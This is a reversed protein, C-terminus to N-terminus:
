HFIKGDLAFDKGLHDMSICHATLIITTTMNGLQVTFGLPVFCPWCMTMQLVMIFVQATFGKPIVYPTVATGQQKIM